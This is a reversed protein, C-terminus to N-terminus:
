LSATLHNNSNFKAENAIDFSTKIRSIIDNFFEKFKGNAEKYKLMYDFDCIM